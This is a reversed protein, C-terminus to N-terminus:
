VRGMRRLRDHCAEALPDDAELAFVWAHTLFFAARDNDEGEAAMDAATLYARAVAWADGRAHASLLDTDATSM